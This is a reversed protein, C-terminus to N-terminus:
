AKPLVSPREGLALDSSPPTLKKLVIGFCAKLFVDLLYVHKSFHDAISGNEYTFTLVDQHDLTISIKKGKCIAEALKVQNELTQEGEYLSLLQLPPINDIGGEISIDLADLWKRGEVFDKLAQEFGKADM